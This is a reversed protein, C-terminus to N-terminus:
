KKKLFDCRPFPQALKMEGRNVHITILNSKSLFITLCNLLIVSDVWLDFWFMKKKLNLTLLKSIRQNINGILRSVLWGQFAYSLFLHNSYIERNAWGILQIWWLGRVNKNLRKFEGTCDLQVLGRPSNSWGGCFDVVEFRGVGLEQTFSGQTAAVVLFTDVSARSQCRRFRRDVGFGSLVIIVVLLLPATGLKLPSGFLKFFDSRLGRKWIRFLLLSHSLM